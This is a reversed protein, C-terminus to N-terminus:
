NLAAALLRRFRSVLDVQDATLSFVRIMSKRAEDRAEGRTSRVVTILEELASEFQGESILREALAFRLRPNNPERELKAALEALGLLETGRKWVAIQATLKELGDSKERHDMSASIPALVAEADAFARRAVLLEALDISIEDLSPEALLAEHLKREAAEFDGAVVFKRAEGRLVEGRSPLLKAIFARVGPEPIAGSFEDAVAGDVFAKVNPIGRIGYRTAIDQNEDTNLKALRFRGNYETALRELIPKLVRCPGCWPAWFDVIVPVSASADIVDASFTAASTDFIIPNVAQTCSLFSRGIRGM